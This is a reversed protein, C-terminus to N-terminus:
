GWYDDLPEPAEDLVSPGRRETVTFRGRYFIM